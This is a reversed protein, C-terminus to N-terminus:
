ITGNLRSGNCVEQVRQFVSYSVAGSSTDTVALSLKVAKFGEQTSEESYTFLYRIPDTSFKIEYETLSGSQAEIALAGIAVETGISRWENSSANDATLIDNDTIDLVKGSFMNDITGAEIPVWLGKMSLAPELSDTGKPQMSCSVFLCLIMATLLLVSAKRM